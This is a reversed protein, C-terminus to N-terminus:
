AVFDKLDAGAELKEVLWGPKRGRGSWTQHPPEPNRYGNPPVPTRKRSVRKGIGFHNLLELPEMNVEAAAEKMKELADEYAQEQLSGLHDKARSILKSLEDASLQTVDINPESPM